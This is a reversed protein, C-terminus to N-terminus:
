EYEKAKSLSLSRLYSAAARAEAEDDRPTEAHEAIASEYLGVFEAVLGERGAEARVRGSVRAAEAADYLALASEVGRGFEEPSLQPGMARIGFNERRLRELDEATVFPGLRRWWYVVVAAGVALAELAARAKAFVVDYGALLEEPRECPRGVGLGYVDLSVGARACADRAAALYANEKTQNCLILARRPRAPLPPRPRFKELDVFQLLVSVRGEPVGHEFVLKDRCASDVGVCRLVRPFKPPADLSLYFDHCVYVAPTDPFRLLATVTEDAHQGHIIDPASDLRDLDDVVPVTEGRILRALAGPRPSYLIPKHGLSLLGRALEFAYLETGTRERLSHNTILVKLEKM